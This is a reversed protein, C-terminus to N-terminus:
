SQLREKGATSSISLAPWCRAKPVEEKFYCKSVIASLMPSMTQNKLIKMFRELTAPTTADFISRSSKVRQRVFTSLYYIFCIMAHIKQPDLTAKGRRFEITHHLCGPDPSRFNFEARDDYFFPFPNIFRTNGYYRGERASETLSYDQSESFLESAIKIQARPSIVHTKQLAARLADLSRLTASPRLPPCYANNKRGFVLSLLDKTNENSFRSINDYLLAMFNLYNYHKMTDADPTRAFFQGQIIAEDPFFFARNIHFHLGCSSSTKFYRNLMACFGNWFDKSLAVDAPLPITNLEAGIRYPLSGDEHFHFYNSSLIDGSRLADALDIDKACLELEVGIAFENAKQLTKNVKLESHYRTVGKYISQNYDTILKQPLSKGLLSRKDPTKSPPTQSYIFSEGTSIRTHDRTAEGVFTAFQPNDNFFFKGVKRIKM